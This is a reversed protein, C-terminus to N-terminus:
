FARRATVAVEEDTELAAYGADELDAGTSDWHSFLHQGAAPRTKVFDEGIILEDWPVLFSKVNRNMFKQYDLFAFCPELSNPDVFINKVTGVKHDTTNLVKFGRIDRFNFDRKDELDSIPMYAQLRNAPMQGM